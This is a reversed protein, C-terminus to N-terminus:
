DLCNEFRLDPVKSFDVSNRTLLIADHAIVICAIKLDMSGIRVKQKRLRQFLDAAESDWPLFTFAALFNVREGLETYAGVQAHPDHLKAIRALWGRLQEEVSVITTVAPQGSRELRAMLRNSSRRRYGLETLHNTDLVLM